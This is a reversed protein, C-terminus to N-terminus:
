DFEVMDATVTYVDKFYLGFLNNRRFQDEFVNVLQASRGGLGAEAHLQEWAASAIDQRRCLPISFLVYHCSARGELQVAATKFNPRDLRFEAELDTRTRTFDQTKCGSGVLAAGLSLAVVSRRFSRRSVRM